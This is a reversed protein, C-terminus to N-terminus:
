YMLPNNIVSIKVCEANLGEAALFQYSMYLFLLLDHDSMFLTKFKMCLGLSACIRTQLQRYFTVKVTPAKMRASKLQTVMTELSVRTVM